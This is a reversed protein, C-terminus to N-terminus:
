LKGAKGLAIILHCVALLPTDADKTIGCAYASWGPGNELDIRYREILPGTASWDTDFQPIPVKPWPKTIPKSHWWWEEAHYEVCGGLAEAVQVHLPKTETPM